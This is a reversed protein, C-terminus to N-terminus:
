ILYWLKIQNKSIQKMENYIRKELESITDNPYLNVEDQQPLIIDFNWTGPGDCRIPEENLKIM